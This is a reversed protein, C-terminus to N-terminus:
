VLSPPPPGNKEGTFFHALAALCFTDISVEPVVQVSLDLHHPVVVVVVVVIVEKVVLIIIDLRETRTHAAASSHPLPVWGRDLGRAALQHLGLQHLRQDGVQVPQLRGPGGGVVVVRLAPVEIIVESTIGISPLTKLGLEHHLKTMHPQARV